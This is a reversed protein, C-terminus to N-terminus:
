EANILECAVYDALGRGRPTLAWIAGRCEVLGIAALKGLAKEWTKTLGEIGAGFRRLDVGDALRFGFVLREASDSEPSLTDSDRPPEEGAFLATLYRDINPKNTWRLFGARSAAAPGLGLYDEGQWYASNHLCERGPLAYNSIEYRRYGARSLFTEAMDLAQMQFDEDPVTIDGARVLRGMHSGEEVTLAYVSVHSPRLAVTKELTARWTKEYVGPLCAILDLGVNDIGGQRVQRVTEEVDRSTHRRGMKELVEDDFSQVGLSIRNVGSQVLISIKEESLTGPNAEVTWEKLREADMGSRLIRCLEALQVADLISSTGGGCYVTRPVPKPRGKFYMDLEISLGALFQDARERSYLESYFACYLCKGDCFPVHVYLHNSEPKKM